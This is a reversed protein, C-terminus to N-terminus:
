KLSEEDNNGPLIYTLNEILSTKKKRYFYIPLSLAIGGLTAIIITLKVQLLIWICTLLALCPIIYGGPVRYGKSIGPRKRRLVIVALCTPIYQLIIVLV